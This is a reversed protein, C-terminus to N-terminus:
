LFNDNKRKRPDSHDEALFASLRSVLVSKSGSKPLGRASLERKLETVKLSTLDVVKVKGPQDVSNPRAVSKTPKRVIVTRKEQAAGISADPAPRKLGKAAFQKGLVLQSNPLAWTKEEPTENIIIRAIEERKAFARSHPFWGSTM